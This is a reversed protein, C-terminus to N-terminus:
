VQFVLQNATYLLRFPCRLLLLFLCTFLGLSLVTSSFHRNSLPLYASTLTPLDRWVRPSQCWGAEEEPTNPSSQHLLMIKIHFGKIFTCCLVHLIYRHHQKSKLVVFVPSINPSTLIYLKFTTQLCLIEKLEIKPSM